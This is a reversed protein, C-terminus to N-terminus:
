KKKKEESRKKFSINLLILAVCKSSFEGFSIIYKINLKTKQPCDMILLHKEKTQWCMMTPVFFLTTFLSTVEHKPDILCLLSDKM